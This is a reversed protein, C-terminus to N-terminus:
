MCNILLSYPSTMGGLTIENEGKQLPMKHIGKGQGIPRGNIVTGFRSGVDVLYVGKDEIAIECHNKSIVLPPGECGLNLHNQTNVTSPNSFAFGGIKFPLRAIPIEVPTFQKQTAESAPSVVIRDIDSDLIVTAQEATSVRANTARLREVMTEIIPTLRPPCSQLMQSFEQGSIVDVITDQTSRATASRPSKPEFLGMEGFTAGEGLLALQVEGHAGHKLIEVQGQLIVYANDSQDGEMFIIDRPKFRQENM